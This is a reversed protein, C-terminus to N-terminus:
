KGAGEPGVLALRRDPWDPWGDVLAVATANSPAVMFDDRGSADLRPLTLALQTM